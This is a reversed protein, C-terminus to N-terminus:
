LIDNSSPCLTSVNSSALAARRFNICLPFTYLKCFYSTPHGRGRQSSYVVLYPVMRTELRVKSHNIKYMKGPQCAGSLTNYGHM